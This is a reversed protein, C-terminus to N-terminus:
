PAPKWATVQRTSVRPVAYCRKTNTAWFLPGAVHWPTSKPKSLKVEDRGCEDCEFRYERKARESM